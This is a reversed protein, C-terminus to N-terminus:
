DRYHYHEYYQDTFNQKAAALMRTYDEWSIRGRNYRTDLDNRLANYRTMIELRKGALNLEEQTIM